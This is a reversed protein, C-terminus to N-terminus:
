ASAMRMHVVLMMLMRVTCEIRGALWVGMEVLMAVADYADDCAPCADDEYAHIVLM